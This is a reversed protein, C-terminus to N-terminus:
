ANHGRSKRTRTRFDQGAVEELAEQNLLMVVKCRRQEKLFTILGLVDKAALGKGARELNDFCIIQERVFLFFSRNANSLYSNLAPIVKLFSVCADGQKKIRNM